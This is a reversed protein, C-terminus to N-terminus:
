REHGWAGRDHEEHRPAVTRLQRAVRAAHAVGDMVERKRSGGTALTVERQAARLRRGFDDMEPSEQLPSKAAKRSSSAPAHARAVDRMAARVENKHKALRYDNIQRTYASIAPKRPEAPDLSPDRDKEQDALRRHDVRATSGADELAANCYVQWQERCTQLFGGGAATVRAAHVGAKKGFDANWDRRKKGFGDPGIDRMTLMVHAHPQEGGDAANPCHIGIDAVMGKAVFQDQVFSRVLAIRQTPNLERPISLEAERFLQATEPRTSADEKKEVENWLRNRNFVWAPVNDPALIGNWVVGRKRTFDHVEGAADKLTGGSRYAAARVASTSRGVIATGTRYAAASAAKAGGGRSHVKFRCHYIAM